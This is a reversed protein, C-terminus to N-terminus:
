SLRWIRWFAPAKKDPDVSRITRLVFNGNIEGRKLMTYARVRFKMAEKYSNFAVSDGIAMIMLTKRIYDNKKKRTRFAKPMPINKEIDLTEM